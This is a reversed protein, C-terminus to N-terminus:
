ILAQIAVAKATAMPAVDAIVETLAPAQPAPLVGLQKLIGVVISKPETGSIELPEDPFLRV